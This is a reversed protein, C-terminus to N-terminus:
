NSSDDRDIETALIHESHRRPATNNNIMESMSPVSHPSALTPDLELAKRAAANAKSFAESAQGDYAPLTSLTLWPPTPWLM